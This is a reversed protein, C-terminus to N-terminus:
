FAVHPLKRWLYLFELHQFHQHIYIIDNLQIYSKSM